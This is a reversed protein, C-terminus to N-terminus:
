AGAKAVATESSKRSKKQKEEAKKSSEAALDARQKELRACAAKIKEITQVGPNACTGEMIRFITSEAVGAYRAIKAQDGRRKVANQLETIKM